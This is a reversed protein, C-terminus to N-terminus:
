KGLRKEWAKQYIHEARDDIKSEDDIDVKSYFQHAIKQAELYINGRAVAEWDTPKEELSERVLPKETAPVPVVEDDPAEVHEAKCFQGNVPASPCAWFSYHSGDKKTGEKHVVALKHVSCIKM